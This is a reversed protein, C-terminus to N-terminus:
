MIDYYNKPQILSAARAILLLFLTSTYNVATVNRRTKRSIVIRKYTVKLIM